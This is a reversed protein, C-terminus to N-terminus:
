APPIYVSQEGAIEELNNRHRHSFYCEYSCYGCLVGTDYEAIFPGRRTTWVNAECETCAASDLDTPSPGEYEIELIDSHPASDPWVGHSQWFAKIRALSHRVTKRVTVHSADRGSDDWGDATWFEGFQAGRHLGNWDLGVIDAPPEDTLTPRTLQRIADLQKPPSGGLIHVRRGRWDTPDSFEHALRDAYGRSYGLIIDDPITDIVAQSKPVIIVEADPFSDQIERAAAIHADVDTPEYIDGIVGVQPEYEFFREVFRDLDPNQFDNDLMGVPLTLNQYQTEQYGCDERFGPLFGLEYADLTFPARHLFAVIDAQRAAAIDSATSASSSLELSM